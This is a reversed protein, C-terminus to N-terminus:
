KNWLVIEGRSLSSKIDIIRQNSSGRFQLSIDYLEQIFEGDVLVDILSLMEKTVECNMREEKFSSVDGNLTNGTYCWIDKNPYETKIRRLFDILGRQNQVEFPEGGLLTLGKVYSMDLEKIIERETEETFPTGYNFDWAVENFCNKCKHTCGSVFLSVRVGEGNSIDCKKITAYHM